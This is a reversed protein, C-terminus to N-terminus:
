ASVDALEQDITCKMCSEYNNTCNAMIQQGVTLSDM